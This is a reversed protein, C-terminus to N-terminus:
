TLAEYSYCNESVHGCWEDFDAVVVGCHLCRLPRDLSEMDGCGPPEDFFRNTGAGAAHAASGLPLSGHSGNQPDEFTRVEEDVAALHEVPKAVDLANVLPLPAGEGGHVRPDCQDAKPGTMEVETDKKGPDGFTIPPLITQWTSPKPATIPATVTFAGQRQSARVESSPVFVTQDSMDELVGDPVALAQAEFQFRVPKEEAADQAYPVGIPKPVENMGEEPHQSLSQETAALLAAWHSAFGRLVHLRTAVDGDHM